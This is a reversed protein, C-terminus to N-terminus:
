ISMQMIQNYADVAANKVNVFLETAIQAKAINMQVQELSDTDGLMLNIMDQNRVAQAEEANTWLGLIADLFTPEDTQAAAVANDKPAFAREVSELPTITSSLPVIYM